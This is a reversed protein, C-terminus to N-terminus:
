SAVLSDSDPEYQLGLRKCLFRLSTIGEVEYRGPGVQVVPERHLIRRARSPESVLLTDIIDEYTVIGMTDGYENVVTAVSAYRARMVALTYALTACWPIHVVEEAARELHAQPIEALEALPVAGEIEEGGGGTILLYDGAPVQGNLDALSVPATQVTLTGRPRMVEEVTIESLDLINHLVQREHRVVDASLQSAEVARELDEAQLYPERVIHPWFARRALRTIVALGPILPDLARVTAALPRSVWPALRRRLVVATSKPLVEGFLIIGFLSVLSFLGAAATQDADHLRQAVVVSVAFYALNVVLNWFLIATLLRDPDALLAAVTREAPRGSRFGRLEDHSLYFVATESASFFASACMLALMAAMGPAWLEAAHLFESM